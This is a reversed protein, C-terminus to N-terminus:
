YNNKIKEKEENYSIGFVTRLRFNRTGMYYAVGAVVLGPLLSLLYWYESVKSVEGFLASFLGSYMCQSFLSNVYFLVNHVVDITREAFASDSAFLATVNLLLTTLYFPSSGIAMIILGDTKKVESSYMGVAMKSGAEWMFSYVLYLYFFVSVLSSLAVYRGGLAVTFVVFLILSYIGSVFHNIFLKLEYSANRKILNLM